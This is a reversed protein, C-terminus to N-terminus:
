FNGSENMTKRFFSCGKRTLDHVVMTMAMAPHLLGTKIAQDAQYLVELSSQMENLTFQRAQQTFLKIFYPKLKLTRAIQDTGAREDMYLRLRSLILMRRTLDIIMGVASQRTDILHELIKLAEATDRRAVADTLEWTNYERSLGVVALIDDRQIDKKGWAFTLIKDLEHHLNWLSTGVHQVLLNAADRSIRVQYQRMKQMIWDVAQNDYLTKSEIWVSHETLTSWFKQRRDARKSVLILCTSEMPSKVYALLRDRDSSSLQQVGKILVVRRTGIMPFSRAIAIVGDMDAGAGSFTDFNLARDSPELQTDILVRIMRDIPYPEDGYFFYVPDITGAQINKLITSYDKAM